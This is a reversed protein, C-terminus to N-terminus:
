INMLLLADYIKLYQQYKVQYLKSNYERPEFEKKVHLKRAVIEELTIGKENTTAAVLAMGYGAGTGSELQKVKVNLVDAFIQMWIENKSGGGTIRLGELAEKPIKMADALQKFGMAIGEMVAVTMEKRTTSTQLGIFSGVLNPNAYITKEGALHPYFLLKNEGLSNLNIEESAEIRENSDLIKRTWWSMSSGASQLSGQVLVTKEKGDFSFLIHKGKVKFDVNEKPYMLVGSTGISLVPYRKAFCGTSIAAAPNDGTGVLVKVNAKMNFKECWHKKLFGAIESTGKVNPFINKPFGFLRQMDISWECKNLDYLSSTSAECFDTQYVGTLRYVIYDPGILFKNIRNFNDEENEKIWYLNSAPSGTSIINAIYGIDSRNKITEKMSPIMLKTRTDNWMLAPRIVKGNEDLIILTHMQGTIGIADVDYSNTGELLIPILREISEMWIEPNIEKWGSKPELICYEGSEENLIEGYENILTLKVSSTGVDIGIYNM